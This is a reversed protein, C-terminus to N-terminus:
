RQPYYVVGTESDVIGIRDCIYSYSIHVSNILITYFVTSYKRKCENTATDLIYEPICESCM